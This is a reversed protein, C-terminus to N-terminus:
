STTRRSLRKSFSFQLKYEWKMASPTFVRAYLMLSIISIWVDDISTVCKLVIFGMSIEQRPFHEVMHLLGTGLRGVKFCSSDATLM